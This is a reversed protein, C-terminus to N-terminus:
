EKTIGRSDDLVIKRKSHLYNENTTTNTKEEGMSYRKTM